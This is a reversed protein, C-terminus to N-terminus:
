FSSASQSKRLLLIKKILTEFPTELQSPLTYIHTYKKFFFSFFFCIQFKDARMKSAEVEQSNQFGVMFNM